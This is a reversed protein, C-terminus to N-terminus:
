GGPHERPYRGHGTHGSQPGLKNWARTRITKMAAALPTKATGGLDALEQHRRHITSDSPVCAIPGTSVLPDLLSVDSVDDAGLILALALSTMVSGVTHTLNSNQQGAFEHDITDAVALHTATRAFALVGANSCIQRPFPAGFDTTTTKM